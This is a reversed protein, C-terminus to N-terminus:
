RMTLDIQVSYLLGEGRGREGKTTRSSDGLIVNRYIFQLISRTSTVLLPVRMRVLTVKIM